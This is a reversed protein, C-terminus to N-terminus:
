GVIHDDRKQAYQNTQVDGIWQLIQHFGVRLRKYSVEAHDQAGRCARPGGTLFRHRGHKTNQENLLRLRQESLVMKVSLQQGQAKDSHFNLLSM